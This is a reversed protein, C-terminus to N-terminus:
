RRRRWPLVVSVSARPLVCLRRTPGKYAAGLGVWNGARGRLADVPSVRTGFDRIRLFASKVGGGAFCACAMLSVLRAQTAGTM